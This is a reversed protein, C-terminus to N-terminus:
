LEIRSGAPLYTLQEGMLPALKDFAARGTCHGTYYRTPYRSLRAAVGRITEDPECVGTRPNSLHFGGVVADLPGGHLAMARTLINVIGRHACGALLVAKGEREILLSQEHAFPDPAYGAGQRILLTRNARSLLERGTVSSFVTLGPAIEADGDLARFRPTNLLEPPLGIFAIEGDPRQVFHPEDALTHRYVPAHDNAALFATLGGGHDYHGHSLVALDVQSLDVGCAAANQVFADSRGTDFLIRTGGAEVYLSLGHECVFADSVATNEMLVQLIM